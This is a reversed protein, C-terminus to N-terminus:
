TRPTPRSCTRARDADGQGEDRQLANYVAVTGVAASRSGYTGYGFPAGLTDGHEVTM